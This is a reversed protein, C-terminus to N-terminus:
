FMSRELLIDNTVQSFDFVKGLGVYPVARYVIEKAEIPTVGISLAAHLMMKYENVCEMTVLAALTVKMRQKITLKTYQLVEDFAFDDFLGIFEHNTDKLLSKHNPFLLNQNKQATKNVTM